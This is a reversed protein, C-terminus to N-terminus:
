KVQCNQWIYDIRITRRWIISKTIIMYFKNCGGSPFVGSLLGEKLLASSATLLMTKAFHKTGPLSTTQLALDKLSFCAKADM